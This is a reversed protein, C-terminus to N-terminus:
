RKELLTQINNKMDDMDTKLRVMDQKLQEIDSLDEKTPKKPAVVKKNKVISKRRIVSFVKIERNIGKMTIAEKEEVKIMDQAHAFTEYPM